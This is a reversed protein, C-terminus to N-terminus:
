CKQPAFDAIEVQINKLVDRLEDPHTKYYAIKPTSRLSLRLNKQIVRDLTNIRLCASRDGEETAIRASKVSEALTARRDLTSKGAIFFSAVIAIVAAISIAGQRKYPSKQPM